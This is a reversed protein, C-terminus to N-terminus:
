MVVRVFSCPGLHFICVAEYERKLCFSIPSAVPAYAFLIMGRQDVLPIRRAPTPTRMRTAKENRPQVQEPKYAPLGAATSDSPCFRRVM